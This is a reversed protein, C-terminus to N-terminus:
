VFLFPGVGSSALRRLKCVTQVVQILGVVGQGLAAFQHLPRPALVIFSIAAMMMMMMARTVTYGHQGAVFDDCLVLAVEALGPQDVVHVFQAAAIEGAPAGRLRAM